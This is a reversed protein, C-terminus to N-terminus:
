SLSFYVEQMQKVFRELCFERDAKQRAAIGVAERKEDSRALSLIAKALSGPDNAPVLIGDKDSEIIEAPAGISTAIVAKGCAMAEIISLGFPEPRVSCHAVIDAAGFIEEVNKIFGTFVVRNNMGLTNVMEHLEKLYGKRGFLTDGVILFKVGEMNESVIKAARLFTKHGKWPVIRAIMCVVIERDKLGLRSRINRYNSKEKLVFRKTDTGNYIVVVKKQVFPFFVNKVERSIAVIKLPLLAGLINIFITAFGFLFDKAPISQLHWICPIGCIKAAIGGYIHEHMGNTHLVSIDQKSLYMAIRLAKVLNLISAYIVAFPNIVRCKGIEFSTALFPPTDIVVTEIKANSLEAQLDKKCSVIVLPSFAQRDLGKLISLLNVQSGGIGRGEDLFALTRKGM